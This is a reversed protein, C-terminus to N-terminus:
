VQLFDREGEVELDQSKIEKIVDEPTMESLAKSLGEFGGNAIYEEISEPNIVGSNRLVIRVQKRTLGVEEKTVVTPMSVGELMLRKLPRGKIFHEEVLEPIDELKVNGYYIGEPYVVMVVGKGIIGLPGTEIVAIERDLGRERLERILAEEVEKAGALLTNADISILVHSRAISM